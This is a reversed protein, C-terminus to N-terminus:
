RGRMENLADVIENLKEVLNFIYQADYGTSSYKNVNKVPEIKKKGHIPCDSNNLIPDYRKHKPHTPLYGGCISCFQRAMDETTMIYRPCDCDIPPEKKVEEDEIKAVVDKFLLDTGQIGDVGMSTIREKMLVYDGVRLKSIDVKDPIITATGEKKGCSVVKGTIKM